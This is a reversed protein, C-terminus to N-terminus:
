SSYFFCLKPLVTLPLSGKVVLPLAFRFGLGIPSVFISLTGAWGVLISNHLINELDSVLVGLFPDFKPQPEVVLVGM